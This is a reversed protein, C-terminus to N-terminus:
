FPPPSRSCLAGPASRSCSIGDPAKVGVVRLDLTRHLCTSPGPGGARGENQCHSNPCLSVLFALGPSDRCYRGVLLVRMPGDPGLRV